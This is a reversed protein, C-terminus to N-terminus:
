RRKGLAGAHEGVQGATVTIAGDTLPHPFVSPWRYQNDIIERDTAFDGGSLNCASLHGVPAVGAHPSM